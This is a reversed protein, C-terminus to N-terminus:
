PTPSPAWRWSTSCCSSSSSCRCGQNIVPGSLPPPSLEGRLTHQLSTMSYKVAVAYLILSIWFSNTLYILIGAGAALLLPVPKLGYLFFAPIRSWFPPIENGHATASGM